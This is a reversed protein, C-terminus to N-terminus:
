LLIGCVPQRGRRRSARRLRPPPPHVKWLRRYTDYEYTVKQGKADRKEIVLGTADYAYTVTGNEPNTTAMLVGNADYTFTRIQVPNPAEGM